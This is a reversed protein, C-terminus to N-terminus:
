NGFGAGASKTAASEFRAARRIRKLTHAYFAQLQQALRSVFEFQRTMLSTMSIECISIM